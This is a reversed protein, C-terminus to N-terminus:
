FLFFISPLEIVNLNLTYQNKETRLPYWEPELDSYGVRSRNLVYLMNRINNMYQTRVTYGSTRTQERWISSQLNFCGIQDRRREFM